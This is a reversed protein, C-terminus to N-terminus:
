RQLYYFREILQIQKEVVKQEDYLELARERGAKGMSKGKERDKYLSVIGKSLAEPDRLPVLLGTVGDVVEERSGRINTAIVPLRMMMAEIITRPMGERWSPLVFLDMARLLEPIDARMGPLLLKKGLLLKTQQVVEDVGNAHDSSLRDGIIIFYIDDYTGVLARASELLEVIGKEEVQRGIMGVLFVDEPIALEKRIHSNESLITPNFRAVDIGNGIAFVRDAALIWENVATEADESSQTFLLDTVRGALRELGVFFSRKISSMDEHFYFGHATYVILPVRSLWAAIRGLLAAVPTHVHVLDFQEKRMFLFLVCISYLHKIPNMGRTIPLTVVRYGNNRIGEVYEDDACVAIVEDGNAMQADVLPLLFKNLSFGVNSLQCVKL